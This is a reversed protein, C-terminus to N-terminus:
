DTPSTPATKASYTESMEAYVKAAKLDGEAHALSQARRSQQLAKAFLGQGAYAEALLAHIGHDDPDLVQARRYDAAARDYKGLRMFVTARAMITELSQSDLGMAQTLDHAAKENEGLNMYAVGRNFYAEKHAPNLAIAMTFDHIADDPRGLKSYCAGRQAFANAVSDDRELVTSYAKVAGTYDGKFYLITGFTYRARIHDPKLKLVAEVDPLAEDLRREKLLMLARQYRASALTPDLEIAQDLYAQATERDLFEGDHKLQMAKDFVDAAEAERQQTQLEEPTLARRIPEQKSSDSCASLSLLSILLIILVPHRM